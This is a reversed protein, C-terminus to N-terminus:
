RDPRLVRLLTDAGIVVAGAAEAHTRVWADSSAVVVPIRKPLATVERVVVDDAEESADSFIVRVGGRRVGPVTPTGDGDFVILVRCGLRRHLETAAMGLRERQDAATADPWARKTVNYGDITLMADATRLMAEVGPPSDALLGKPLDPRTRRTPARAPEDAPSEPAPGSRLRRELARLSAAAQEVASAAEDIDRADRASRAGQEARERHRELEARLKRVDDELAHARKVERTTRLREEDLAGTAQALEEAVLELQYQAARLEASAQEDRARRATREKKLEGTVRAVEAEAELRAAELRRRTEVLDALERDQAKHELATEESIRTDAVRAIIAGLGLEAGEPQLAWLTSALLALDHRAAAVDICALAEFPDWAAATARVEERAAFREFVQARFAEEIMLARVLQRRGPGALLGRRDFGHVPRLSKPVDITDLSRLTDAADELLPLLLEDSIKVHPLHSATMNREYVARGHVCVELFERKGRLAVVLHDVDRGM